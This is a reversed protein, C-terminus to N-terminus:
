PAVISIQGIVIRDDRMRQGQEDYVALRELTNSDYMGLEIAYTGPPADAAVPIRYRDKLVEGPVWSTTPRVGDGPLRDRQGWVRNDQSILHTFVSYGASMTGKARWYLTVFISDGPKVPATSLDYGLFEVGSGLTARMLNKITPVTFVHEPAEVHVTGLPALKTPKDPLVLAASLAYDGAALEAPINLVVSDRLTEGPNWETTPFKGDAPAFVQEVAIQGRSNVLAVKIQYANEVKKRAQWYLTVRLPEGSHSMEASLDYGLLHLENLQVNDLPFSIPNPVANSGTGRSVAIPATSITTGLLKGQADTASVRGYIPSYLGFEVFYDKPPSDPPIPLHFWSVVEEDPLWTSIESGIGEDSSWEYGTRDTLHAFFKYPGELKVDKGKRAHLLITLTGGTQPTGDVTYGVLKVADGLTASLPVQAEADLASLRYAHFLNLGKETTAEGALAANALWHQATDNAPATWPIIYLASPREPALVLGHGADFLQVQPNPRRWGFYDRVFANFDAYEVSVYVRESPDQQRIFQNAAALDGYYLHYVDPHAAFVGFYDQITLAGTYVLFGLTAAWVLRAGSVHWRAAALDLMTVITLAPFIYTPPLAAITRLFHPSEDSLAGPALGIMFWLLLFISEPRRVRLLTLAIGAYFLVAGPIDFVPRGSLNYKWQIDGAVSFMGLTPALNRGLSALLSPATLENSTVESLRQTLSEPHLWFYIGLPAFVVLASAAYLALNQANKRLLARRLFLMAFLFVIVILPVVRSASYTYQSLGLLAGGLIFDSRRESKYGRWFFYFAFSLIAPLLIARLGTRSEHLAWYSLAVLLAALLGVRTDFLEHAVLYVGFVLVIGALVTPLVIALGTPGLIQVFLAVLYVFLPERGGGAPFWIQWHGDLVATADLGEAATDTTIGPPIDNLRYLRLLAALFLVLLLALLLRHRNIWRFLPADLGRIM